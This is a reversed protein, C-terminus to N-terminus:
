LGCAPGFMRSEMRCKKKWNGKPWAKLTSEKATYHSLNKGLKQFSVDHEVGSTM